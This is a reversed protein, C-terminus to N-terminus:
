LIIRTRIRASCRGFARLGRVSVDMLDCLRGIYFSDSHEEIFRFRM